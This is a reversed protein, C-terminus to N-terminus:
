GALLSLIRPAFLVLLGMLGLLKFWRKINGRTQKDLIEDGPAIKMSGAPTKIKMFNGAPEVSAGRGKALDIFSNGTNLEHSKKKTHSSSM